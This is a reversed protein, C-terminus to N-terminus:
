PSLSLFLFFPSKMHRKNRKENNGYRRKDDEEEEEARVEQSAVYLATLPQGDPGKV